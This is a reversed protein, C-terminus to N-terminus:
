EKYPQISLAGGDLVRVSVTKEVPNGLSDPKIVDWTASYTWGNVETMEVPTYGNLELYEKMEGERNEIIDPIWWMYTGLYVITVLPVMVALYIKKRNSM